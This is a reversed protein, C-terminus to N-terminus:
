WLHFSRTIYAIGVAITLWPFVQDLSRGLGGGAFRGLSVALQLAVTVTLCFGFLLLAGGAASGTGIAIAFTAYLLGCPLLTSSLGCGFMAKRTRPTLYRTLWAPTMATASRGFIGPLGILVLTIGTFLLVYGISNKAHCPCSSPLYKALIAGSQGFVAGAITYGLLRGLNFLGLSRQPTPEGLMCVGLHLPGCMGLCHPIGLWGLSIGGLLCALLTSHDM